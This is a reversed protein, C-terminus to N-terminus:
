RLLDAFRAPTLDSKAIFGRAAANDLRRRYASADRSSTLVVDLDPDAATLRSSVDFGDIDPLVIDLLVADPKLDAVTQLAGEGTAAEGIVVFGASELLSKAFTRYGEHDDVILVTVKDHPSPTM